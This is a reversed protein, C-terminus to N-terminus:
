AHTLLRDVVQAVHARAPAPLGSVPHPLSDPGVLGLHEAAATIVRYSGYRAFADWLPQLRTSQARADDADGSLAARALSLAAAPFTGGIVSYWADCGALLGTAASADGSIGITVSGPIVGRITRVRDAAEEGHSPLPPIKISTINTLGGISAYLDDSFTVHTTGPNDYVVVPVSVASAITEFLAYVEADTLAQYTVPALLLARAGAAQADDAYRLAVSTRLAGIGVMVPVPGAHEVALQTVRRREARDLYMYSGTSGLATISDVGAVRLRDILGIFAREDLADDRLPTLPLRQPRHVDVPRGPTLPRSICGGSSRLM